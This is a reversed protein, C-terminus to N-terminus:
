KAAPPPAFVTRFALLAGPHYITAHTEAPLPAYHFDVDDYPGARFAVALRAAGEALEPENSSAVFVCKRSARAMALRAGASRVLEENNWWLSADLAIYTDFLDPELFFTEIVFLGALSEGVIAAEGTTRYRARVSPMLEDRIFRRFTASGGVVPAAKLDRAATTPGTLDRRRVTNPIGVLVFPRMGGNSVLVQVLGAVHLFDEHLGGDLMYLGPLPTDIKEGYVTPIFVNVPRAERMIQSDITFSEGIVLPECQTACPGHIERPASARIAVQQRTCGAVAASAIILLLSRVPM